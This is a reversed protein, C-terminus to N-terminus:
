CKRMLRFIKSNNIVDCDCWVNALGTQSVINAQAREYQLIKQSCWTQEVNMLNMSDDAKGHSQRM